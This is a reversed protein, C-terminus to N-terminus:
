SRQPKSVLVLAGANSLVGYSASSDPQIKNYMMSSTSRPISSDEMPMKQKSSFRTITSLSPSPLCRTSSTFGQHQLFITSSQPPGFFIPSKSLFVLASVPITMFRILSTTGQGILTCKRLSSLAVTPLKIGNPPGCCGALCILEILPSERLVDLVHIPSIPYQEIAGCEFSTLGKFLGTPWIIM